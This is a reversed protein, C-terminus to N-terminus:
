VQAARLIISPYGIGYCGSGRSDEGSSVPAVGGGAGSADVNQIGNGGIDGDNRYDQLYQQGQLPDSRNPFQDAGLVIQPQPPALMQDSVMIAPQIFPDM